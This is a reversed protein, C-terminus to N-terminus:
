TDPTLHWTYCTGRKLTFPRNDVLGVGDLKRNLRNCRSPLAKHHCSQTKRCSWLIFILNAAQISMWVIKSLDSSPCLWLNSYIIPQHYVSGTHAPTVTLRVLVCMHTSCWNYAYPQELGALYLNNDGPMASLTFMAINLCGFCLQCHLRFGTANAM